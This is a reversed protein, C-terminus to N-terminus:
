PEWWDDQDSFVVIDGTSRLVGNSFNRAPGLQVPNRIPKVCFSSDRVYREILDWTGDTSQDDCIVLEDPLRTQAGISALQEEMFPLGNFCALVVSLRRM